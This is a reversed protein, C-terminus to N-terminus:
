ERIRYLRVDCNCCLLCKIQRVDTGSSWAYAEAYNTKAIPRSNDWSEPVTATVAPNWVAPMWYSVMNNEFSEIGGWRGDSFQFIVYSGSVTDDGSRGPSSTLSLGNSSNIAEILASAGIGAWQINPYTFSGDALGYSDFTGPLPVSLVTVTAPAVDPLNANIYDLALPIRVPSKEKHCTVVVFAGNSENAYKL